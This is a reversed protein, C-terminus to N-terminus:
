VRILTPLTLPTYSVSRLACLQLAFGFRNEPRRRQRINELDDDGLTYSGRISM